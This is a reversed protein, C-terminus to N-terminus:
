IKREVENKCRECVTLDGKKETQEDSVTTKCNPCWTVPAQKKYALGAKFLQIFIWQTWKYYDPDMADTCYDWDFMNGIRKLQKTFNVINRDTMKKPHVGMKIAFNESHIGGSDFGMPEFVDYGQMRMFRGHIDSGTFAYVNGM